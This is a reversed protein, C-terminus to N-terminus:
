ARQPLHCAPLLLRVCRLFEQREPKGSPLNFEVVDFESLVQACFLPLRALGVHPAPVAHAPTPLPCPTAKAGCRTPLRPTRAPSGLRARTYQCFM